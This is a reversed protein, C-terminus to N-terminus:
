RVMVYFRDCLEPPLNTDKFAQLLGALRQEFREPEGPYGAATVIAVNTHHQLLNTILHIMKNNQEFHHGDEYLTGDADFTVLQISEASARVQSVIELTSYFICLFPFFFFLVVRPHTTSSSFVGCQAASPTSGGRGNTGLKLM